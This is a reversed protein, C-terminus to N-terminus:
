FVCVPLHNLLPILKKEKRQTISSTNTTIISYGGVTLFTVCNLTDFINKWNEIEPVPAIDTVETM